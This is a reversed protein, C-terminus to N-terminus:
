QNEILSSLSLLPNKALVVGSAILIGAAGLKRSTEYDSRTKVGAGVLVPVQKSSCIGVVESIVSPKASTVSINGGILEPPEYAILDPRLDSYTEVEGPSECCLAIELGSRRASLLTAEIVSAPLRRESHNLLSGTIGLDILSEPSFQGTYAGYEVPDVHQSYFELEPFSACLRLDIPNLAFILRLGEPRELGVFNELFREAQVSSSQRYHKLNVIVTSGTSGM